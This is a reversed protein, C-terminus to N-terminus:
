CSPYPAAEGPLLSCLKIPLLKKFRGTWKASEFKLPLESADGREAWQITYYDKVGEVVILLL